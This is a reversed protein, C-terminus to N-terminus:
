NGCYGSCPTKDNKIDEFNIPSHDEDQEKEVGLSKRALVQFAEIVNTGEKASTEFYPFGQSNCWKTAKDCSIVRTEDCDVKNGVVVFPFDNSNPPFAKVLFESKWNSLNNFTSEVNVDFVLLCADAGRYFSEVLSQFREQGATDWIQLAIMRDDVKITSTEFDAGITAKYRNTFEQNVFQNMLCTKGVGSDGLIVVKKLVKNM